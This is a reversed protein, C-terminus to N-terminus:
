ALSAVIGKEVVAGASGFVIPITKTAQMAAFTAPTGATVIVDVRTRVLDAGLEPLREAKGDALRYEMVFDRDEVYGLNALGQRFANGLSPGAVALYGIRYVKRPQATAALATAFLGLALALAFAPRGNM